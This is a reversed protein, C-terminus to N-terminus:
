RRVAHLQKFLTASELAAKTENKSRELAAEFTAQDYRIYCVVIM